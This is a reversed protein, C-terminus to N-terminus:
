FQFIDNSITTDIKIQDIESVRIWKVTKGPMKSAQEGTWEGGNRVVKNNLIPSVVLLIDSAKAIELNRTKYGKKGNWDSWGNVEPPFIKTPINLLKAFEEAWLDVGGLPCHGSTIYDPKVETIFNLIFERAKLKELQIWSREEAGVIGLIM